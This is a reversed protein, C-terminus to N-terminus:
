LFPPPLELTAHVPPVQFVSQMAPLVSAAPLVLCSAPVQLPRAWWTCSFPPPICAEPWPSVTDMATICAPDLSSAIDYGNFQPIPDHM